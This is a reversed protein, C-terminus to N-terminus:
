TPNQVLVLWITQQVPLLCPKLLAISYVWVIIVPIFWWARHAVDGDQRLALFALLWARMQECMLSCESKSICSVHERWSFVHPVRCVRQSRGTRVTSFQAELFMLWLQDGVLAIQHCKQAKSRFSSKRWKYILNVGTQPLDSQLSVLCKISKLQVVNCQDHELWSSNRFSCGGVNTAEWSERFRWFEFWQSFCNVYFVVEDIKCFSRNAGLHVM